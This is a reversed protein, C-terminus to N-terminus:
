LTVQLHATMLIERLCGTHHWTRETTEWILTNLAARSEWHIRECLGEARGLTCHSCPRRGGFDQERPAGEPSPGLSRPVGPWTQNEGADTGETQPFQAEINGPTVPGEKVLKCDTHHGSSLACSCGQPWFLVSPGSGPRAPETALSNSSNRPSVRAHQAPPRSQQPGARNRQPFSRSLSLGLCLFVCGLPLFDALM